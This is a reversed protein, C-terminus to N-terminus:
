SVCGFIMRNWFFSWQYDFRELCREANFLNFIWIGSWSRTVSFFKFTPYCWKQLVAGFVLRKPTSDGVRPFPPWNPSAWDPNMLSSVHAKVTLLTFVSSSWMEAYCFGYFLSDSIAELGETYQSIRCDSLPFPFNPAAM